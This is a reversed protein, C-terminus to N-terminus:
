PNPLAALSKMNDTQSWGDFVLSILDQSKQDPDSCLLLSKELGAITILVILICKNAIQAFM